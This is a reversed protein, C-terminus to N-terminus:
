NNTFYDFVKNVKGACYMFIIIWFVCGTIFVLWDYLCTFSEFPGIAIGFVTTAVGVGRGIIVSGLFWPLNMKAVGAIMVLADDPFVPLMMTLPFYGTGKERLIKLAKECDEKGLLKECVKYGGFKGVFYMIASSVYVGISWIFFAHWPNEYLTTILIGLSFSIGPIFCFVISVVTRFLIMVCWGYWTNKFSNFISLNFSFGDVFTVIDFAVLIALFFISVCLVSVIVKTLGWILKKKNLKDNM